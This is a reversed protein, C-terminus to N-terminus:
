AEHGAAKLLRTKFARTADLFTEGHRKSPEIHTNEHFENFSTVVVLDPRPDLDLAAAQMLDYTMQGDRPIERFSEISREPSDLATDNYGPCISFVKLDEAGGRNCFSRYSKEWLSNWLHSSAVQLPSYLSWGRFFRQLHRPVFADYSLRGTAIPHLGHTWSELDRLYHYFFSIFLNSLFFWVPTRGDVKLYADRTAFRELVLPVARRVEAVDLTGITINIALRIPSEEEEVADFLRETAKLDDQHLGGPSIQWNVVLYDLGAREAQALHRSITRPEVSTYPGHAPWDQVSGFQPNEGWHRPRQGQRYWPYYFAGLLPVRAKSRSPSRSSRNRAIKELFGLVQEASEDWTHREACARARRGMAEARLPDRFLTEIAAGIRRPDPPVFMASSDDLIEGYGGSPTVVTPRGAAAAEMPMMGFPEWIPTYAGCTSESYIRGLEARSVHGAFVVRSSVGLDAALQELPSREPGDGVILLRGDAVHSMARVLLDVQKHRWLRGVFLAQKDSPMATVPGDVSVGPYAVLDPERGYITELYRGTMHSNTILHDFRTTADYTELLKLVIDFDNLRVSAYQDKPYMHVSVSSGDTLPREYRLDYLNRMPELAFWVSPKLELFQTPFMYLLYLDHRGIKREWMRPEVMTEELLRFRSRPRSLRPLKVVRVAKTDIDYERLLRMKVAPTYLTIPHRHQWRKVCELLSVTSGGYQDLQPIIIGLNM